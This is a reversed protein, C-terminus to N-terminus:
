GNTYLWENPKWIDGDPKTFREHVITFVHDRGIAQDVQGLVEAKSTEKYIGM